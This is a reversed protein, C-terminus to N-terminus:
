KQSLGALQSRPQIQEVTPRNYARSAECLSVAVSAAPDIKRVASEFTRVAEPSIAGRIAFM